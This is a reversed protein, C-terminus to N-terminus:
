FYKVNPQPLSSVGAGVGDGSEFSGAVGGVGGAPPQRFISLNVFNQSFFM